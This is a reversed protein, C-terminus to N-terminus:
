GEVPGSADSRLPPPDLRVPTARGVAAVAQHSWRLLAAIDLGHPPDDAYLAINAAGREILRTAGVANGRAAHTIGVALQALGRWLAAEAQPGAKWADELVEHAHFPRGAALLRHAEALAEAPTRRVGEPQAEVGSSGYPLPRGLEDRPRTNRRARGPPPSPTPAGPPPQDEEGSM